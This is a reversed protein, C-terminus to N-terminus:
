ELEYRARLEDWTLMEGSVEAALREAGARDAFAATGSAMPSKIQPSVVFSAQTADIWEESDFDHAYWAVVQRDPNKKVHNLMDGIDDFAISEYRGPEIEHALGAAYRPDSIIMNCEACITEGYRIEPPAAETQGPACAALALGVTLSAILSFLLRFM